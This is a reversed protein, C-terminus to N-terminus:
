RVVCRVCRLLGSVDGAVEGHNANNGGEDAGEKGVAEECECPLGDPLHSAPISLSCTRVHLPVHLVTSLQVCLALFSLLCAKTLKTSSSAGLCCARQGGACM